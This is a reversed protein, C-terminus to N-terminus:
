TVWTQSRNHNGYSFPSRSRSLAICEGRSAISHDPTNEVENYTDELQFLIVLSLNIEWSSFGFSPQKQLVRSWDRLGERIKAHVALFGSQQTELHPFM